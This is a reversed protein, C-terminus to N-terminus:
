KEESLIEHCRKLADEFSGVINEFGIMKLFGSKTLLLYPQTHIESLILIANKQRCSNYLEELAHIGGADIYFMNGVRLILARYDVSARILSQEFKVVTGFFLPGEVEFALVREPLLPATPMEDGSENAIGVATEALKQVEKVVANTDSHNKSETVSSLSVMKRIFFFAACVLGVEIAVTLDILVTLVFTVTLVTIDSKQGRLLTKIARLGLMNWSVIALVAALACLPIYVAYQGLLLLVLLLVAAHVMGSVPTRGGNKVNAATRAIAGTAPIGGFLPAVINAAGQAILEMNPDHKTGIMGDAVVASLLSEVAGLLAISFAAPFLKRVTEFDVTPLEPLSLGSPIAGYRSGITEVDLHFALAAATTALIVVLSGPIKKGIFPIKEWFILLLLSLTAMLAAQPNVTPAALAFAKMKGLFDGPVKGTQLGFFDGIQTTMITVAIGATFGIVIAYPIFRILGGMRFAGLLVLMIGAMVTATILGSIGFDRVVGFVIVVFAGTPGGIQVRSGGLFSILFGAIIATYLGREPEVGSAIAFAIALPLAVVAVIIGASLDSLFTKLDYSRLCKFFEPKM